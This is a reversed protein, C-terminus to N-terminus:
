SPSSRQLLCRQLTFGLKQDKSKNLGRDEIFTGVVEELIGARVERIALLVVIIKAVRMMDNALNSSRNAKKCLPVDLDVDYGNKALRKGGDGDWRIWRM